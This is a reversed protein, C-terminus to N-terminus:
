MFQCFNAVVFRNVDEMCYKIHLTDHYNLLFKSFSNKLRYKAFGRYLLSGFLNKSRSAFDCFRSCISSFRVLQSYFSKYTIFTQCTAPLSLSLSQMMISTMQRHYIKTVFRDEDINIDLDLFTDEHNEFCGATLPVSDPYIGKSCILFKNIDNMNCVGIDDIHHINIQVSIYTLTVCTVCQVSLGPANPNLTSFFICFASNKLFCEQFMGSWM